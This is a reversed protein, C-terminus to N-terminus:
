VSKLVAASRRIGQTLGVKPSWGLAKVRSGDLVYPVKSIPTKLPAERNEDESKM